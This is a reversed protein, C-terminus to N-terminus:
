CRGELEPASFNLRLNACHTQFIPASLGKTLIDAFQETSSVFHVQLQQTAVRERFFHVDLEIHKTRQHQIPNCTLAIASLNDCFLLPKETIPIQLFHLLSKIWDLETATTSLAQYEAKTSSRSVRNQKKSM